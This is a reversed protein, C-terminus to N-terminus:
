NLGRQSSLFVLKWDYAHATHALSCPLKELVWIDGYLCAGYKYVFKVHNTMGRSQHHMWRYQKTPNWWSDTCIYVHTVHTHMLSSCVELVHTAYRENCAYVCVRSVCVCVCVCVCFGVGALRVCVCACVGQWLCLYIACSRVRLSEFSPILTMCQVYPCLCARQQNCPADASFTHVLFASM